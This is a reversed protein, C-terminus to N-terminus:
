SVKVVIGDQVTAKAYWRHPEPYHPGELTVQGNRPPVAGFIEGNPQFVTVRKGASIAEKLAKKTKYNPSCYM